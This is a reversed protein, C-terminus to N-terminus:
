GLIELTPIYRKHFESTLLYLLHFWMHGMNNSFMEEISVIFQIYIELTDTLEVCVTQDRANFLRGTRPNVVLDFIPEYKPAM